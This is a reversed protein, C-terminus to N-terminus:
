TEDLMENQLMDMFRFAFERVTFKKEKAESLLDELISDAAASPNIGANAPDDKKAFMSAVGLILKFVGASKAMNPFTKVGERNMREEDVGGYQCLVYKHMDNGLMNRHFTMLAIRDLINDTKNRDDAAAVQQKAIRRYLNWAEFLKHKEYRIANALHVISMSMGYEMVLRLARCLCTGVSIHEQESFKTFGSQLEQLSSTLTLAFWSLLKMPTAGESDWQGGTNEEGEEFEDIWEETYRGNPGKVLRHPILLSSQDSVYNKFSSNLDIKDRIIALVEKGLYSSVFQTSTTCVNSLLNIIATMPGSSDLLLPSRGSSRPAMFIKNASCDDASVVFSGTTQVPYWANVLIFRLYNPIQFWSHKVNADNYILFDCLDAVNDQIKACVEAGLLVRRNRYLDILQHMYDTTSDEYRLEMISLESMRETLQLSIGAIRLEAIGHLGSDVQEVIARMGVSKDMDDVYIQAIAMPSEDLWDFMRISDVDFESSDYSFSSSANSSSPAASSSSAVISLQQSQFKAEQNEFFERQRTFVFQHLERLKRITSSLKNVKSCVKAIAAHFGSTFAYKKPEVVSGSSTKSSSVFKDILNRCTKLKEAVGPNSIFQTIMMDLLQDLGDMFRNCGMDYFQEAFRFIASGFGENDNTMRTWSDLPIDYRYIREAKAWLALNKVHESQVVGNLTPMKAPRLSSSSLARMLQCTKSDDICPITYHADDSMRLSEIDFISDVPISSQTRKFIESFDNKYPSHVYSSSVSDLLRLEEPGTDNSKVIPHITVNPPLQIISVFKLGLATELSQITHDKVVPNSPLGTTLRFTYETLDMAYCLDNSFCSSQASNNSGTFIHSKPFINRLNSIAGLTAQINSQYRIVFETSILRRNFLDSLCMCFMEMSHLLAPGTTFPENEDLRSKQDFKLIDAITQVNNEFLFNFMTVNSADEIGNDAIALGQARLSEPLAVNFLRETFGATDDLTIESDYFFRDFDNSVFKSLPYTTKIAKMDKVLISNSAQSVPDLARGIFSAYRVPCTVTAFEKMMESLAVELQKTHKSRLYLVSEDHGMQVIFKKLISTAKAILSKSESICLLNLPAMSAMHEICQLMLHAKDSLTHVSAKWAVRDIMLSSYRENWVAAHTSIYANGGRASQYLLMNRVEVVLTRGLQHVIEIMTREMESVPLELRGMEHVVHDDDHLSKSM